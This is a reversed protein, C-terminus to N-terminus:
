IQILLVNMSHTVGVSHVHRRKINYPIRRFDSAASRRAALNLNCYHACLSRAAEPAGCKPLNAWNCSGLLPFPQIKAFVLFLMAPDAKLVRRSGEVRSGRGGIEAEGGALRDKGAIGCRVAFIAISHSSNRWRALGMAGAPGPKLLLMEGM